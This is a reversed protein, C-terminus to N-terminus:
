EAPVLEKEEVQTQAAARAKEDKGATFAPEFDAKADEVRKNATSEPKWLRMGYERCM